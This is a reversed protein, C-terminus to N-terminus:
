DGFIPFYFDDTVMRFTVSLKEPICEFDGKKNRDEGKCIIEFKLVLV